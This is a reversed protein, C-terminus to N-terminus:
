KKVVKDLNFICDCSPFLYCLFSYTVLSKFHSFLWGLPRNFCKYRNFQFRGTVKFTYDVYKASSKGDDECFDFSYICFYHKHEPAGMGASDTHHPVHIHIRGTPKLIRHCEGIVKFTDELHELVDKLLIYDVSNDEFPYPFRNLDLILDCKHFPKDNINVWGDRYDKGCGLNLKM